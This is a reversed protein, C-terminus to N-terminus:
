AKAEDADLQESSWPAEDGFEDGSVDVRETKFTSYAAGPKWFESDYLGPEFLGAAEAKEAQFVPKRQVFTRTLAVPGVQVKVGAPLEAAEIVAQAAKQRLELTKDEAGLHKRAAKVQDFEIVADVLNEDAAIQELPPETWGAFCHAAHLCFHGRAESPKSCVRDPMRAHDRWRELQAIRDRMEALLEQYLDSSKVLVFREHTFDSPDVVILACNEAGPHHETYGVAQLLKSRRMVDSAHASSLIEVITRTEPIYIDAHGVGIPWEIKVECVLGAGDRVPARLEPPVWYDHGSDVWVRRGMQTALFLSYDRGISKGRWLYGEEQATRERGPAGEWEYVAKRPCSRASSWRLMPKTDTASM